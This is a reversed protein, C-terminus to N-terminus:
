GPTAISHANAKLPQQQAKLEQRQGMLELLERLPGSLPPEKAGSGWISAQRARAPFPHTTVLTVGVMEHTNGTKPAGDGWM